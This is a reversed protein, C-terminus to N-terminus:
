NLIVITLTSYKRHVFRTRVREFVASSAPSLRARPPCIALFPRVVCVVYLMITFIFYIIALFKIKQYGFGFPRQRETGWYSHICEMPRLVPGSGGTVLSQNNLRSFLQRHHRPRLPAPAANPQHCCARRRWIKGYKWKMKWQRYFGQPIIRVIRPQCGGRRDQVVRERKKFILNSPVQHPCM